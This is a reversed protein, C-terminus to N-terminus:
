RHSRSRSGGCLEMGRERILHICIAWISVGYTKVESAEKEMSPKGDSGCCQIISHDQSQSADGTRSFAIPPPCCRGIVDGCGSHNNDWFPGHDQQCIARPQCEHGSREALVARLGTACV